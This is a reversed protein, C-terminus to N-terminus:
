LKWIIWDRLWGVQMFCYRLCCPQHQLDILFFPGFVLLSWVTDVTVPPAFKTFIQIDPTDSGIAGVAAIVGSVRAPGNFSRSHTGRM